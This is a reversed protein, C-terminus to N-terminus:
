KVTELTYRNRPIELGLNGRLTEHEYETRFLGRDQLVPVVLDVFDALGNPVVTRINFGDAAGGEFWEQIQDAIQDPTGIFSTRPTSALLAVQRLTLGQERAQQKIKDTTSRFSNSGLNGIEPFPEDLPFQAFDYHDFYRGLYNLAQDISVLEAIEQYKREAEEETRGVIPGIGPFILIDEPKRGYAVAREKVDSYFEQAEELTEHGTYIADASRAALEKGSESSGAQFVVPHGQKSRAVNLPGQVSFHDGKHNLTHLKSPDFFVGNEKDGIFADDEWSDWLGKVVNLHEEAIEYRLAHNPHEGKGFNLASGELPSTVVNWGARGGSIQDLSAFQRAVTFPESYSTSLTAVLGIHSTAGALASLLTLPEFRNLFHPNSKENIFLGDAIFLLDFKGEEAKIAQMKYFDLNVSANILIDPHRWFSISNGVGNLNAGLRLRRQSM